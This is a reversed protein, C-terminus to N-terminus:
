EHREGKLAKLHDQLAVLNGTDGSIDSAINLITGATGDLAEKPLVAMAGYILATVENLQEQVCGAFVLAGEMHDIVPKNM